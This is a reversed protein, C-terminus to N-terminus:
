RSASRRRWSGSSWHRAASAAHASLSAGSRRARGRRDAAAQRGAARREARQGRRDLLVRVAALPLAPRPRRVAHGGRDPAQPLGQDRARRDQDDRPRARRGQGQARLAAARLRGLPRRGVGHLLRRRRARQVAGRRRLRLRGRRGLSIRFNGRCMHTTIAMGEPRRRWRRTSTASTPRTCTSPTTARPRWRPASTPTTSTRSARTTSSCTPAASTASRWAGPRRLRDDPRGLVPGHGPLGVARDGRPRRPLPGHEPSPITLKPTARRHRREAPVRLGRAFIPKELTVKGDIHM